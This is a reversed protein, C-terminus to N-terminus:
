AGRVGGELGFASQPHLPTKSVLDDNITSRRVIVGESPAWPLFDFALYRLRSFAFRGGGM